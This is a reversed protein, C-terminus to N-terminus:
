IRTLCRALTSKGAGTAGMVVALAGPPLALDVNALAPRAGGAYTCGLGRVEVAPATVAARAGGGRRRPVAGARPRGRVGGDRHPAGGLAGALPRERDAGGRRLGARHRRRRARRRAPCARARGTPPARASGSLPAPCAPRPRPP